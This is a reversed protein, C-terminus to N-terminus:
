AYVAELQASRFISTLCALLLFVVDDFEDLDTHLRDFEVLQVRYCDIEVIHGMVDCRLLKVVLHLLVHRAMVVGGLGM